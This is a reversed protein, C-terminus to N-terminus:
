KEHCKHFSQSIWIWGAVSEKGQLSCDSVGSEKPLDCIEKCWWEKLWLSLVLHTKSSLLWVQLSLVGHLRSIKQKDQRELVSVAKVMIEGKYMNCGLKAWVGNVGDSSLIDTAETWNRALSVTGHNPSLDETSRSKGGPYRLAKEKKKWERIQRKNAMLSLHLPNSNAPTSSTIIFPAWSFPSTQCFGKTKRLNARPEKFGLFWRRPNRYRPLCGLVCGGAQYLKWLQTISPESFPLTCM